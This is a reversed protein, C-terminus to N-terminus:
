DRFRLRRFLRGGRRSTYTQQTTLQPAATPTTTVIGPAAETTPRDTGAPRNPDEVATAPRVNADRNADTRIAAAPAVQGGASAAAPAVGRTTQTTPAYVVNNDRRFPRSFMRRIPGQASADETVLAAISGVAVLILARMWTRQM